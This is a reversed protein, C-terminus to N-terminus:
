KKLLEITGWLTGILLLIFGIVEFLYQGYVVGPVMGMAALAPTFAFALLFLLGAGAVFKMPKDAKARLKVYEAFVLVLFVVIVLDLLGGFIAM